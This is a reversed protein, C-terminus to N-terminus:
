TDSDQPREQEKRSARWKRNKDKIALSEEAPGIDFIGTSLMENLRGYTMTKTLCESLEASTDLWRPYDGKSGDVEEDCNDRNDWLLEKLASLDIALRKNDVQKANPSILHFFPSECDAFWVHGMAASATEEWQRIDLQGRMDVITARTRLVHEVANSLAYAEAMLTVRCVRRIRTSSWSLPHILMKEANLANGPALATVCAQQSKFNQTVGDLQEQEQCFSADSITPFLQVMRSIAHTFPSTPRHAGVAFSITRIWMVLQLIQASDKQRRPTQVVLWDVRTSQPFPSMITISKIADSRARCTSPQLHGHGYSQLLGVHDYGPTHM